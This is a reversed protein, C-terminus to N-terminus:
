RLSADLEQIWDKWVVLRGSTRTEDLAVVFGGPLVDYTAVNDGPAGFMPASFLPERETVRPTGGQFSLTAASLGDETRYYLRTGSPDWVPMGGQEPAIPVARDGHPFARVMVQARGGEVLTYALWRGDPSLRPAVEQGPGGVVPHLSDSGASLMAIDMQSMTPNTGNNVDLVLAGDGPHVDIAEVSETRIEALTRVAGGGDLAIARIRRMQTGDEASFPQDNLIERGDLTWAPAQDFGIGMPTLAGSSADLIWVDDRDRFGAMGVAVRDGDPGVRPFFSNVRGEWLERVVRGRDDVLVPRFAEGALLMVLVGSPSLSAEALADPVGDVAVPVGVTEGRENDWKVAMLRDSDDMFLLKDGSVGVISRTFRLRTGGLDLRRTENTSFDLIGLGVPEERSEPFDIFLERKGGPLVYPEHQMGGGDVRPQTRVELRGTAVDMTTLGPYDGDFALMGFELRGNGEWSIGIPPNPLTGIQTATGGDLPTRYVQGDEAVFAVWRGDPSITPYEGGRTGAIPRVGPTALDRRFLSRGDQDRGLFVVTRGDRSIDLVRRWGQVADAPKELNFRVPEPVQTESSPRLAMLLAAATAIAAVAWPVVRRGRNVPGGAAAVAGPSSFTSTRLAQAFESASRFRDAPLKQLATHVAAAVNGPVTPRQETVPRADQTLIRGLVAQASSGTFPPEGTLMEYLVCGLSYVDARADPTREATAQEPSMYFPTGVSLGTETLRGGGAEQVALAIGFDAVLPEGNALLINAPKIDRHIIGQDHAAQLAGAVKTAIAVAEDVPLQGERELRDRLSEGEIYPMAYWLLGDDQGSDFLPLIHPHQLNATTRIEAIFREGGVVAALEPKLVKLAVQRDHKLDQALYVSAMGGEGLERDLAYRDGLAAALRSSPDSMGAWRNM